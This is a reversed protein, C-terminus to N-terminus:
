TTSWVMGAGCGKKNSAGNVYLNWLDHENESPNKTPKQLKSIFNALCQVRVPGRPEFSLDLELLEMSWSIMRGVLGPRLFVKGVLYDTKITVPHGQFYPRLRRSTYVLALNAREIVQYRTEADHLARGTFYVPKYEEEQV